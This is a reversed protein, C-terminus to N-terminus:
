KAATVEAQQQVGYERLLEDIEGHRVAIECILIRRLFFVEHPAFRTTGREARCLRAADFGSRDALQALTLGSLARLKQLQKVFSEVL